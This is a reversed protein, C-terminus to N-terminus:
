AREKEVPDAGVSRPTLVDAGAPARPPAVGPEYPPQSFWAAYDETRPIPPLAAIIKQANPLVEPFSGREIYPVCRRKEGGGIYVQTGIESLGRSGIWIQAWCELYGRAHLAETLEAAAADILRAAEALSTM